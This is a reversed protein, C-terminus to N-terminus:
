HMSSIVHIYIYIYIYVYICGYNPFGLSMINIYTHHGYLFPTKFVLYKAVGSTQKAEDAAMRQRKERQKYGGGLRVGDNVKCNM